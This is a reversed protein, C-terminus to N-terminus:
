SGPWEVVWEASVAHEQNDDDEFKLKYIHKSSPTMRGTQLAHKPPSIVEARYFCSTDPYLAMVTSGPPFDSYSSLHSPSGPAANPDPLPIIARLTTNYCLGPQGDEQPEPDQVEYRNKDGNLCKTVVALIWNEGTDANGGGANPKGGGSPKGSPQHFAVKRGEQLPLQRSLVPSPGVSNRAPLTISVRPTVAVPPASPIPTSSPSPPRPRKIRKEPPITEPAKRLAILVDLREIVDEIAKVERDSAAQIEELGASLKKYIGKVDNLGQAPLTDDTPWVSILRNVRDITEKTAPTSYIRSLHTLSTAAHSWCDLEESSAPRTSIARRRDM